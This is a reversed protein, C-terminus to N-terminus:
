QIRRKHISLQIKHPELIDSICCMINRLDSDLLTDLKPYRSCTFENSHVHADRNAILMEQFIAAHKEVSEGERKKVEDRLREGVFWENTIADTGCFLLMRDLGCQLVKRYDRSVMVCNGDVIEVAEEYNDDDSNYDHVDDRVYSCNLVWLTSSDSLYGLLIRLLDENHFIWSSWKEFGDRKITLVAFRVNVGVTAYNDMRDVKPACRAVKEGDDSGQKLKRKNSM